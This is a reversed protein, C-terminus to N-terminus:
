GNSAMSAKIATVGDGDVQVHLHFGVVDHALATECKGTYEFHSNLFEVMLNIEEKTFDLARLDIGRWVEHVGVKEIMEVDNAYILRREEETRYIETIVLFKQFNDFVFGALAYIIVRLRGDLRKDKWEDVQRQNKFNILHMM